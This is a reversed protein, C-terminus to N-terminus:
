AGTAVEGAESDTTPEASATNFYAQLASEAQDLPNGSGDYAFTFRFREASTEEGISVTFVGTATKGDFSDLSEIAYIVDVISNSNRISIGNDYSLASGVVQNNTVSM